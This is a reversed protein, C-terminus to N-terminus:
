SVEKIAKVTTYRGVFGLLEKSRPNYYPVCMAVVNYIKMSNKSIVRYQTEFNRKRTIADTWEKWVRDHDEPHITNEWGNGIMEEQNRELLDLMSSNVRICLGDKDSEWIPDRLTAVIAWHRADMRSTDQSLTLVDSTLESVGIELRNIVDRLSTGGNPKFQQKIEHIDEISTLVKKIPVATIRYIWWIAGSLVGFATVLKALLLFYEVSM